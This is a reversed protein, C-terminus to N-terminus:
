PQVTDTPRYYVIGDRQTADILQTRLELPRANEPFKEHWQISTVPPLAAFEPFSEAAHHNRAVRAALGMTPYGNM